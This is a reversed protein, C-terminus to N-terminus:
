VLFTLRLSSQEGYMNSEQRLAKKLLFPVWLALSIRYYESELFFFVSTAHFHAKIAKAAFKFYSVPGYRSFISRPKPSWIKLQETLLDYGLRVFTWSTSFKTQHRTFSAYTQM